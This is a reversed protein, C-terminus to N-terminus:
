GVQSNVGGWCVNKKKMLLFNLRTIIDLFFNAMVFNNKRKGCVNESNCSDESLLVMM